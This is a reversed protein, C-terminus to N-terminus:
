SRGTRLRSIVGRVGGMVGGMVGPAFVDEDDSVDLHCPLAALAQAATDFGGMAELGHQIWADWRPDLKKVLRGAPILPEEARLGTILQYGIEVISRVEDRILEAVNAESDGQEVMRSLGYFQVLLSGHRDVLVDDLSMLGHVLSQKHAHRSADLIQVIAREAEFPHLQGAKERLLKRLTRLGDVDGTYPCVVWPHGQADLTHYEIPLLHEHRIEQCARAADVFRRIGTKDYVAPFRYAVHNSQDAQHLALHGEAAGDVGLPKTLLYPGVSIREGTQVM